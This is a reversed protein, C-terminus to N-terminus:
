HNGNQKLAALAQNREEFIATLFYLVIIGVSLYIEIEAIRESLLGLPTRKPGYFPECLFTISGILVAFLVYTLGMRFAIWLAVALLLLALPWRAEQPYETWFSFQLLILLAFAIIAEMRQTQSLIFDSKSFGRILLPTFILTSIVHGLWWYSFHVQNNTNILPLLGSGALPTIASCIIAIVCFLFIDRFSRLRKDLNLTYFAAAGAAAQLLYFLSAIFAAVPPLGGLLGNLLAAFWLYKAHKGESVILAALAIGNPALIVAPYTPVSTFLFRSAQGALLFALAFLMMSAEEQTFTNLRLHIKQAVAILQSTM